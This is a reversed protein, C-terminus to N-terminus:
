ACFNYKTLVVWGASGTKVRCLKCMLNVKLLATTRSCCIYIYRMFSIESVPNIGNDLSININIIICHKVGSVVCASSPLVCKHACLGTDLLISATPVTILKLMQVFYKSGINSKEAEQTSLYSSNLVNMVEASGKMCLIVSIYARQWDPFRGMSQYALLACEDLRSSIWFLM